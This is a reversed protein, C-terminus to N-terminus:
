KGPRCFTYRCCFQRPLGATHTALELLTIENASSQALEPLYNKVKDNLRIQEKQVLQMYTTATFLKTVSQISYRSDITAPIKNKIDIYGSAYDFIINQDHVIAVAISPSHYREKFGEIGTRLKITISDDLQQGFVFAQMPLALLFSFFKHKM